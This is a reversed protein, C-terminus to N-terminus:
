EHGPREEHGKPDAPRLRVRISFRDKNETPDLTVPATLAADVFLPSQELVTTISAASAALGALDLRGDDIALETLYATDPLIKTLEDLIEVRPPYNTKLQRLEVASAFSAQSKAAASLAADAKAKLVANETRLDQLLAEHRGAFLYGASAALALFSVVLVKAFPSGFLSGSAAPAGGALFNVNFPASGEDDWADVRGVELGISQLDAIVPDVISRKLVLQRVRVKDGALKGNEVVQDTYVDKSKFPTAREFDLALIKRADRVAAVPLEVRRSFCMEAPVRIALRGSKASRARAALVDLMEDRTLVPAAARKIQGGGGTLVRVGGQEISIVTSAEAPAALRKVSNPVLAALESRWWDFATSGLGTAVSWASTM